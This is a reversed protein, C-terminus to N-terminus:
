CLVCFYYMLMVHSTFIRTAQSAARTKSLVDKKLLRENNTGSKRGCIVDWIRNERFSSRMVLAQLCRCRQYCSLYFVTLYYISEHFPQTIHQVLRIPHKLAFFFCFVDKVSECFRVPLFFAGQFCM